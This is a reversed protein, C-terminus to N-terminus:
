GDIDALRQAVGLQLAGLMGNQIQVYVLEPQDVLDVVANMAILNQEIRDWLAAPLAPHGEFAYWLTLLSLSRFDSMDQLTAM